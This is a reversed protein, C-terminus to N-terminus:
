KHGCVVSFSARFDNAITKHHVGFVCEGMSPFLPNSSSLLSVYTDGQLLQDYCIFFETSELKLVLIIMM